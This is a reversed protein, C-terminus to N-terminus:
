FIPVYGTEGVIRQGESSLIFNIFEATQGKPWGDTFLYLGRAIPFSGNVVNAETADVGNVKIPKLEDSLYGLGVYGIGGKTEAVTGAVAGNSAQLLARPSLREGDLAISSFVGYTGSSSDRSIITIDQEPGGFESWCTAEGTFIAKIEELSLDEIPNSPHLVVAIGDMAIRHPVPYIGNDVANKVEEDRIFRSAQGIDVAGDVVAAIGNGSGGGRVTINIEPNQDMYVEAASQTVPLVTTSGQITVTAATAAGTIMFCFALVLMLCIMERLKLM